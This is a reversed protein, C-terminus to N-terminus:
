EYVPIDAAGYYVGNQAYQAAGSVLGILALGYRGNPLELMFADSGLPPAVRKLETRSGLGIAVLTYKQETKTANHVVVGTTFEGTNPADALRM